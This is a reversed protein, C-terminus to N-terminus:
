LCDNSVLHLAGGDRGEATRKKGKELRKGQGGRSKESKGRKM